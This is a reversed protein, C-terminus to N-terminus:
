KTYYDRIGAVIASLKQLMTPTPETYKLKLDKLKNNISTLLDYNEQDSATLTLDTTVCNGAVCTKSADCVITDIVTPQGNVCSVGPAACTADASTCTTITSDGSIMVTNLSDTSPVYSSLQGLVTGTGTVRYTFSGKKQSPYSCILKQNNNSVGCTVLGEYSEVEVKATGTFIEQVENSNSTLNNVEITITNGSITRHADLAVVSAVFILMLCIISTLTKKM